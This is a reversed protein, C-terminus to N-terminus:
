PATVAWTGSTRLHGPGDAVVRLGFGFGGTRNSGAAKARSPDFPTISRVLGGRDAEYICLQGPAATPAAASGPCESTVADGPAVIHPIPAAALALVFSENTEGDQDAAASAFALTYTGRATRASPLADAPGQPGPPGAPGDAGIPGAPGQPGTQNWQIAREGKACGSSASDVM